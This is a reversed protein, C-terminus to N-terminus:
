QTWSREIELVLAGVHTATHLIQFDWEGLRCGPDFTAELLGRHATTGAPVELAISEVGGAEGLRGAWRSNAERLQVARVQVVRRLSEEFAGRMLSVDQERDLFRTLTALLESLAERRDRQRPVHVRPAPEACSELAPMPHSRSVARLGFRIGRRRRASVRPIWPSRSSRRM